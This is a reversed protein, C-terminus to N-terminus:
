REMRGSVEERGTKSDVPLRRVSADEDITDREMVARVYVGGEECEGVAKKRNGERRLVECDKM